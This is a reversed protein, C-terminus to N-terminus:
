AIYNGSNNINYKHTCRSNCEQSNDGYGCHCNNPECTFCLEAHFRTHGNYEISSSMNYLRFYFIKFKNILVNM